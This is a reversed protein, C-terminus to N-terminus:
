TPGVQTKPYGRLADCPIIFTAPVPCWAFRPRTGDAVKVEADPRQVTWGFAGARHRGLGPIHCALEAGHGLGRRLAGHSPRVSAPGGRARCHGDFAVAADHPIAAHRGASQRAAHEPGETRGSGDPMNGTRCIPLVRRRLSRRSGSPGFVAMAAVLLGGTGAVIALMGALLRVFEARKGSAFHRAMQPVAAQSLSGVVLSAAVMFGGAVAFGGLAERGLWYGVMYRPLATTLAVGAGALGLPLSLWALRMLVDRNWCPWVAMRRIQGAAWPLDLVLLTTAAAVPFGMTAWVIDGGFAVALALLALGLPGRVMLSAAVSDMRDRQQLLAHFIDCVSELVVALGALLIVLAMRGEYGGAAVMGVIALMALASTILRLGLYDGFRYERRADTVLAGGLGLDALTDIPNCIAFALVLQGIMEADGLRALLVIRGWICAANVLNGLAALLIRPGCPAAMVRNAARRRGPASDHCARSGRPLAGDHYCHRRIGVHSTVGRLM